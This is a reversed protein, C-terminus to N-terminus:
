SSFGFAKEKMQQIETCSFKVDEGIVYFPAWNSIRKLDEKGQLTIMSYQLAQCVSMNTTVHKYFLEMFSLTADDDIAWLTVVVASAGAGLFSRAIGVVGEARIDGQATQCCSLVVLRARLSLSAIDTCTLLYEEETPLQNRRSPDVEPALVIEGKVPDGHAAIHVISAKVLYSIVRSKTAMQQTLATTHLFSAVKEAERQAGPLECPKVEKGRRRVRGVLPNGIVLAGGEFERKPRKSILALTELSTCLQISFKKSLFIGKVDLLASFPLRYLVAEPIILLKNGQILHEVPKILMDYLQRLTSGPHSVDVPKSSPKSVMKRPLEERTSQVNSAKSDTTGKESLNWPLSLSEQITFIDECNDTESALLMRDEVLGHERVGQRIEDLSTEVLEILAWYKQGEKESWPRVCDVRSHSVVWTFMQGNFFSYMLTTLDPDERLKDLFKSVSNVDKSHETIRKYVTKVEFKHYLLDKLAMARGRDEALMADQVQGAHFMTYSLAKYVIIHLDGISVKLSEQDGLHARIEEYETICTQYIAMAAKYEQLMRLCKAKALMAHYAPLRMGAEKFLSKATEHHTLSERYEERYSLALGLSHEARAILAKDGIKRAVNANEHFFTSGNKFDGLACYANGLGGSAIFQGRLDGLQTALALHKKSYSLAKLPDGLYRYINSLNSYAGGEDEKCGTVVAVALSKEYCRLAKQYEGVDRYCLGLNTLAHFELSKDGTEEAIQLEKDFCEMAQKIHGLNRHLAGMNGLAMTKGRADALEECIQLHKQFCQMSKTFNRLKRMASGISAYADAKIQQRKRKMKSNPEKREAENEDGNNLLELARECCSVGRTIDNSTMYFMGLCGLSAVIYTPHGTNQTINLCETFVSYAKHRENNNLLSKGYNLSVGIAEHVVTDM